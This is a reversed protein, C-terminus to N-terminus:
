LTKNPRRFTRCMRGIKHSKCYCHLLKRYMKIYCQGSCRRFKLGNTLFILSHGPPFLFMTDYLHYLENWM